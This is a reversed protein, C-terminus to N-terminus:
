WFESVADAVFAGARSWRVLAVVALRCRLLALLGEWPCVGPASSYSVGSGCRLGVALLPNGVSPSRCPRGVVM